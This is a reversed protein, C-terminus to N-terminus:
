LGLSARSPLQGFLWDDFLGSLEMGSVRSAVAIFDETTANGGRFEATYTRLIEFFREDGVRLRLAHLTLAGRHYIAGDFLTTLTPAGPLVRSRRATEYFGRLTQRFAAAGDVHETWLAEAYSAFGENLWINQWSYVSVSNGFWQHAIEHAVVLEGAYTVIGTGYIPISQTELAFGMTPSDIVIGGATEFPYEGFLEEFHAIMQAQRKFAAIIRADANPPLYTNIPLGNPGTQEYTEFQGVALTLLYSAMPENMAWVYTFTDGDDITQELVGNSVAMYPAPVTIRILYTAKDRPHDNVPIFTAASYPQGAVYIGDEYTIYGGLGIYPNSGPNPTGAYAIRLEVDQGARLPQAPTITLEGAAYVFGAAAGNVTVEDITLPSFDLNFRRLPQQAVFTVQMVASLAGTEVSEITLDIEYHLVDYGPNGAAPLMPDGIGVATQAQARPHLAALAVFLLATLARTINRNLPRNM